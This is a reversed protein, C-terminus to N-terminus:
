RRKRKGGSRITRRHNGRNWRARMEEAMRINHEVMLDVMQQTIKQTRKVEEMHRKGAWIQVAIRAREKEDETPKRMRSAAYPDVPAELKRRQEPTFIKQVIYRQLAARARTIERLKYKNRFDSIMVGQAYCAERLRAVQEASLGWRKNRAYMERNLKYGEIEARQEITLLRRIKRRYSDVLSQRGSAIAKKKNALDCAKTPDGRRSAELFAKHYEDYTANNRWRWRELDGALQKLIPKIAEHQRETLDVERELLAIECLKAPDNEWVAGPATPAMVAISGAVALAASVHRITKM